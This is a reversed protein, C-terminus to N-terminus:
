DHRRDKLIRQKHYESVPEGNAWYGWCSHHGAYPLILLQVRFPLPIRVYVHFCIACWIRYPIMKLNWLTEGM